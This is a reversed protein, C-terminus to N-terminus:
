DSSTHKAVAAIVESWLIRDTHLGFGSEVVWNGREVASIVELLYQPMFFSGNPRKQVLDSAYLLRHEPFYVMQMREGTETRVPYIELRNPGSGLSKKATIVRFIPKRPNTELKDPHSKRSATLVRELLPVNLDLAYIPVGSAAYERLGGVHPFADSTTVIGKLPVGPFRRGAEALVKASYGSSIPAEIVVVGDDHKVITVGWNGPINVIGPALEVAPKRPNGLPMKEPDFPASVFLKKADDSITFQAADVTPNIKLDTVTFSKLTYGNRTVDAQHPYRLGGAELTWNSYVTRTTHDGWVSWFINDPSASKTEVATPLNTHSNLFIVVPINQWTFRVVNQVVGEMVVSKDHRLDTAMLATLFLREPGLALTMEGESVESTGRPIYRGNRESVAVKDAVILNMGFWQPAQVQRMQMSRRLRNLEFDRTETIQQYAVVYPGEPRESQEVAYEHGIGDLTLTAIGRLKDEGGMAQIAKLMLERANSASRPFATGVNQQSAVPFKARTQAHIGSSANVVFLIALGLSLFKSSQTKRKNTKM